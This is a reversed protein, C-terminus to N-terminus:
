KKGGAPPRGRSRKPEPVEVETMEIKSTQELGQLADDKKNKFEDPMKLDSQSILEEEEVKEPEAKAGQVIIKKLDVYAQLAKNQQVTRDWLGKDFSVFEGPLITVGRGTKKKDEETEANPFFTFLRNMRNQIIVNM